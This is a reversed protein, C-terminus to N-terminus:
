NSSSYLFVRGSSTLMVVMVSWALTTSSETILKRRSNSIATAETITTTIKSIGSRTAPTEAMDIGTVIKMANASNQMNPISSFVTVKAANITVSPMITSSETTIM